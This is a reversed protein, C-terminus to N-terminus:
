MVTFKASPVVRHMLWVTMEQLIVMVVQWALVRLEISKRHRKCGIEKHRKCAGETGQFICM